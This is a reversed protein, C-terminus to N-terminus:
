GYKSKWVKEFWDRIKVWVEDFIYILEYGFDNKVVEINFWRNIFLMCVFFLIFKFKKGCLYGVVDCAYAFSMMFIWGFFKFKNKLLLYGFEVFVCDLFDWLKVLEGDICIYFKKLASSNLYLAREGLILGYCYNDVYCVSILNEGNGFIRLRKVNILFNYMFLM